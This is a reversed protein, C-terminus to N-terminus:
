LCLRGLLLTLRIYSHTLRIHILTRLMLLIFCMIKCSHCGVCSVHDYTVLWNWRFNVWILCASVRLRSLLIISYIIFRVAELLVLVCNCIGLRFIIWLSWFVILLVMVRQLADWIYILKLMLNIHYQLRLSEWAFYVRVRNFSYRGLLNSAICRAWQIRRRPYPIRICLMLAWSWIQILIVKELFPFRVLLVTLSSLWGLGALYGLHYVAFVVVHHGRCKLTEFLIQLLLM